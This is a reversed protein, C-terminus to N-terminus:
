TNEDIQAFLKAYEDDSFSVKPMWFDYLEQLEPSDGCIEKVKTYAYRNADTEYALNLYAATFYDESGSLACTRWANEVLKFCVGNYLIVYNISKQINSDFREPQCYQMAHRLEHYLYYLAEYAPANQILDRNLYITNTTVDYTGYASEYGVPMDYSLSLILDNEKCFANIHNTFDIM